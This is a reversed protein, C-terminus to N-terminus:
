ESKTRVSDAPNKLAARMMAAAAKRTRDEATPWLHAYVGLTTTASVHGLARQVTVVDCGQAILGSAFYHRLDHLYFAASQRKSRAKGALPAPLGAAELTGRWWM